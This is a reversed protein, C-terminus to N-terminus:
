RERLGFISAFAARVRASKSDRPIGAVSGQDEVERMLSPIQAAFEEIRARDPIAGALLIECLSCEEVHLKLQSTLHGSGVYEEVEYPQLCDPGPYKVRKLMQVDRDLVEQVSLGLRSATREAARMFRPTNDERRLLEEPSLGLREARKRLIEEFKENKRSMKIEKEPPGSNCPNDQM